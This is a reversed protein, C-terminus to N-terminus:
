DHIVTYKDSFLLLPNRLYGNQRIELHLHAYGFQKSYVPINGTRGVSAFPVEASVWFPGETQFRRQLQRWAEDEALHHYSSVVNSDHWIKVTNGGKDTREVEIVFGDQVPYVPTGEDAILDLGQHEYIQGQGNKRPAGFLGVDKVQLGIKLPNHLQLHWRFQDLSDYLLKLQSLIDRYERYRDELEQLYAQYVPPAKRSSLFTRGKYGGELWGFAQQDSRVRYNKGLALFILGLRLNEEQAIEQQKVRYYEAARTWDGSERGWHVLRPQVSTWELDLDPTGALRRRIDELVRDPLPADLAEEERERYTAQLQTLETFIPNFFEDEPQDVNQRIFAAKTQLSDGPLEEELHCLDTGNFGNLIIYALLRKEDRASLQYPKGYFDTNIRHLIGAYRKWAEPVDVTVDSTYQGFPEPTQGEQIAMRLTRSHDRIEDLLFGAQLYRIQYHIYQRIQSGKWLGIGALVGALLALLVTRIMLRRRQASTTYFSDIESQIIAAPNEPPVSASKSRM